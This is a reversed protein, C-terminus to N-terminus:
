YGFCTFTSLLIFFLLIMLCEIVRCLCNFSSEKSILMSGLVSCRFNVLRRKSYLNSALTFFLTVVIFVAYAM